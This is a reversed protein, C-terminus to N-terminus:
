SGTRARYFLYRNTSSHPDAIHVRGAPSNTTLLTQWQNSRLTSSYEVTLTQSAPSIVDFAFTGGSWIANTLTLQGASVTTFTGGTLGSLPTGAPNQGEMVTWLITQGAPLAAIPTCTLVTDGASWSLSAPLLEYPNTAFLYAMTVSNSMTESFTIVLTASLPVGTAGDLPVTSVIRPQAYARGLSTLLFLLAIVRVLDNRGITFPFRNMM